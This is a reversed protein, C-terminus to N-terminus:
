GQVDSRMALQTATTQAATHDQAYTVEAASLSIALQQDVRNTRNKGSIGSIAWGAALLPLITLIVFFIQLRYKFAM